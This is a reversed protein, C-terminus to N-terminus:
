EAPVLNGPLEAATWGRSRYAVICSRVSFVVLSAVVLVFMACLAADFRDNFIIQQMEAMDKAPALLQNQSGFEGHCFPATSFVLLRM